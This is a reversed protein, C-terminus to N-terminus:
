MHYSKSTNCKSCLFSVNHSGNFLYVFAACSGSFIVVNEAFISKTILFFFQITAWLIVSYLASVIYHCHVSFSHKQFIYFLRFRPTSKSSFISFFWCVVLANQPPITLKISKSKYLRFAWLLWECYTLFVQYMGREKRSDNM